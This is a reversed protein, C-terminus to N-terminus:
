IGLIQELERVWYANMTYPLDPFETPELETQLLDEWERLRIMPLDRYQEAVCDYFEHDKVIPITKMSLCEWFRYTDFGEGMPCTSYYCKSLEKCYEIYSLQPLIFKETIPNQKLFDFFCERKENGIYNLLYSIGLLKEKREPQPQHDSNVGLPLLRCNPLCGLWNQIWFQTEPFYASIAEMHENQISLDSGAIIILRLSLKKTEQLYIFIDTWQDFSNPQLYLVRSQSLRATVNRPSDTYFISKKQLEDHISNVTEEDTCVTDIYPYLSRQCFAGKIM